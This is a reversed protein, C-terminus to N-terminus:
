FSSKQDFIPLPLPEFFETEGRLPIRREKNLEEDTKTTKHGGPGIKILAWAVLLVIMVIFIFWVLGSIRFRPPPVFQPLIIVPDDRICNEYRRNLQINDPDMVFYDLPESESSLFNMFNSNMFENHMQRNINKEINMGLFRDRGQPSILIADHDKMNRNNSLFIFDNDDDILRSIKKGLKTINDNPKLRDTLILVHDDPAESQMWKLIEIYMLTEINHDAYNTLDTAKIEHIRKTENKFINIIDDVHSQYALGTCLFVRYM